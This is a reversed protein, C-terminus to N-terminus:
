RDSSVSKARSDKLSTRSEWMTWAVYAISVGAGLLLPWGRWTSLKSWSLLAIAILLTANLFLPVATRGRM